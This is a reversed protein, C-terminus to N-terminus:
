KVRLINGPETEPSFLISLECFFFFVFFLYEIPIDIGCRPM